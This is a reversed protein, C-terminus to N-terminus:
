ICSVLARWAALPRQFRDTPKIALVHEVWADVSPSLDPRLAHLSPRKATTALQMLELVTGEFPMRGALARFLVVGLAYVDVLPDAYSSGRLWIEPALYSPSGAVANEATIQPARLLKAFGFDLLRVGGDLLVFINTLKLDRHVIGHDHAAELTAIIPEFIPALFKADVPARAAERREIVHHFDAGHLLEMVLGLAGDDARVQHLVRVAATDKLQCMVQAERFTREVADPDRSAVLKLAVEDGASSRARFVTGLGGRGIVDLTEYSGLRVTL